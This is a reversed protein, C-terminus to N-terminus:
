ELRVNLCVQIGKLNVRRKLRAQDPLFFKNDEPSEESTSSDDAEQGNAKSSPTGFTQSIITIPLNRPLSQLDSPFVENRLCTQNLDEYGGKLAIQNFKGHSWHKLFECLIHSWVWVLLKYQCKHPNRNVPAHEEFTNTTEAGSYFNITRRCKRGKWKFGLQPIGAIPM